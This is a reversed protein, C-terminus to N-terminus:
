PNDKLFVRWSVLESEGKEVISTALTYLEEEGMPNIDILFKVIHPEPIITYNSVQYYKMQRIQAGWMRIFDANLYQETMAKNGDVIFTLDRLYLALYPFLPLPKSKITERYVKFNLVPSMVRELEEFDEREESLLNSWVKKLKTVGISNLGSLVAM